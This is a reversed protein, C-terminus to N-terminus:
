LGRYDEWSRPNIRANPMGAEGKSRLCSWRQHQGEKAHIGLRDQWCVQVNDGQSSM